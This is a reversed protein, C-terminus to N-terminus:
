YGSNLSSGFCTLVSSIVTLNSTLVEVTERKNPLEVPANQGWLQSPHDAMPQLLMINICQWDRKGCSILASTTSLPNALHASIVLSILLFFNSSHLPSAMRNATAGVLIWTTLLFGHPRSKWCVGSTGQFWLNNSESQCSGHLSEVTIVKHVVHLEATTGLSVRPEEKYCRYIFVCTHVCVCM